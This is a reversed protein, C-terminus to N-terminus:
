FFRVINMNSENGMFLPICDRMEKDFVTRIKIFNEYSDFVIEARMQFDRGDQVPLVRVTFPPAAVEALFRDDM